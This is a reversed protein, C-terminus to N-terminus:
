APVETAARQADRVDKRLIKGVPSKPLETVFVFRKPVKYPTLRERCWARLADATLDPSDRVLVARVEEGADGAPVGVVAAELVGPHAALAEEVEGPYVNFGSVLIVDKKRDVITFFGDEDMVAIDGTWLEGDRLAEATEADRRWYGAMVQPGRAVLEGPEGVPVTRGSADACRVVTGPLPIGVSGVRGASEAPAGAEVPALPNFTLVPSSETLGYGEVVASGAVERWREATERHLAMGGAVSARLQAPPHLQFWEERVLGAFLTNVGSLWSIPYHEFARKLNSLPRPSPVLVNHGGRLYFGLLNVTFAFIHYMPLATLVTEAGPRLHGGVMQLMQQCNALLNGHTLMAGKAVGTTGGTYQLVALDDHDLSAWWSRVDASHREGAALADRLRVAPFRVRPLSRTWVRQVTRVIGSVYRPFFEDIRVLVVPRPGIAPLVQELRDAFLDAVVIAAPDADRFQREMESPTYLPNTNVLVCGAKLVGFAVVPFSLCNPSQLAVRDGERLGLELRLYAAFADSLRDVEDYTLRGNFGNPLCTTFAPAGQFERSAADIMDPLSAFPLPVLDPPVDAPYSRIWPHGAPGTADNSM